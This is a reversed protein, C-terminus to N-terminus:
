LNFNEEELSSAEQIRTDKIRSFTSIRHNEPSKM